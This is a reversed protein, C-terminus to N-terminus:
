PDTALANIRAFGEDVTVPEKRLNELMSAMVPYPVRRDEPRKWNRALCISIPTLFVFAEVEVGAAKAMQILPEREARRSFTADFFIDAPHEQEAAWTSKGSGPIGVLLVLRAPKPDANLLEQLQQLCHTWAFNSKEKSPDYKGNEDLRHDDPCIIM